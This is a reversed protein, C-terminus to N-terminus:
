RGLINKLRSKWNGFHMIRGVGSSLAQRKTSSLLEKWKAMNEGKLIYAANGFQPCEAVICNEFIYVFYFRNGLYAQGMYSEKPSLGEIFENREFFYQSAHNGLKQKVKEVMTKDKWWGPPLVEWDLRSYMKKEALKEGEQLVDVTGFNELLLNLDFLLEEEFDPAKSNIIQDLKFGIVIEDGKDAVVQGSITLHKPPIIDKQYVERDWSVNHSGKSWDGFNPSEHTFTKSVMPLDKRKVVHSFVNRFSYKGLSAHPEFSSGLQFQGDKYEIGFKKLDGSYIQDRKCLVVSVVEVLPSHFGKVKKLIFNPIKRFHKKM